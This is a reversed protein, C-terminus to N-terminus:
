KSSRGGPLDAADEALAHIVYCDGIQDAHCTTVIRTLEAELRKLQAIRARIHELHAGAIRHAETCPMEPQQSLTLLERIADLSLGLDRAHRIFALRELAAKGYRRQNGRSREAPPLLGIEEYYRITPVKVETRQSLAGISLM